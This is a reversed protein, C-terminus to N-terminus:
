KAGPSLLGLLPGLRRRNDSQAIWEDWAPSRMAEALPSGLEFFDQWRRRHIDAAESEEPQALHLLEFQEDNDVLGGDTLNGSGSLVRVVNPARAIWLKPHFRAARPGMVVRVEVEPALRSLAVVAHPDTIPAGRVVFWMRPSSGCEDLLARLGDVGSQTVFAVAVDVLQADKLLM